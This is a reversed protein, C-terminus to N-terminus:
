EESINDEDDYHCACEVGGHGFVNKVGHEDRDYIM